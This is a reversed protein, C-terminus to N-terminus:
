RREGIVSAARRQAQKGVKTRAERARASTTTATGTALTAGTTSRDKREHDPWWRSRWEKGVRREESRDPGALEPWMASCCADLQTGTVNESSSGRNRVAALSRSDSSTRRRRWM